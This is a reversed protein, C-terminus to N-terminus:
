TLITWSFDQSSLNVVVIEDYKQQIHMNLHFPISVLLQVGLVEAMRPPM